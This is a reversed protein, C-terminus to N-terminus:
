PNEGRWWPLLVAWLGATAAPLTVLPLSCVLWLMNATVLTMVRDLWDERTFPNTQTPKIM